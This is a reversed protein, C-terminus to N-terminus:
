PGGEGEAGYSPGSFPGFSASLSWVVIDGNPSLWQVGENFAREVDPLLLLLKM